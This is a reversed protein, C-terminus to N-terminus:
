YYDYRYKCKHKHKHKHKHKCLRPAPAAVYYSGPAPAPQNSGYYTPYNYVQAPPLQYCYGQAACTAPTATWGLSFALAAFLTIIRERTKVM